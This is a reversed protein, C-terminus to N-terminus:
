VLPKEYLRYTKYIRAGLDDIIRRMATNDELIWSLEAREFGRRLMGARLSALVMLMLASGLLTRHYARRLGMLPIRCTRVGTVKLRWLLKLWGFPLLRGDLGAIAEDLNPLCVVMCAPTGDVEAIWILDRHILPRMAVAAQEVEAETFPVFGWNEAWADNFIDLIVRLEARYRSLDAPRVRVRNAAGARRLMREFRIPPTTRYDYDYALLDKVKRYGQEALRAAAYPEAHGMMIMSPHDFGEVLLGSEENISLTFPGVVRRMGRARLWDEAAGALAAFVDPDDEADLAGFHGTADDYRELYLTDVQASIRGVPREGRYALWYCAKAHRFYANKDFNFTQRREILLPAVYNPRGAYLRNPLRIFRELGRRDTM